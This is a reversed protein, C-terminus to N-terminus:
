FSFHKLCIQLSFWFVRKTSLLTNWFITSKDSLTSFHQLDTFAVSSSVIRRVRQAHQIVLAVSVCASYTISKQKEVVFITARVPSFTVNIRVNSTKNQIEIGGKKQLWTNIVAQNKHRTWVSYSTNINWSLRTSFLLVFCDKFGPNLLTKSTCATTYIVTQTTM